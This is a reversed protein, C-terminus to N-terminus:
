ACRVLERGVLESGAAMASATLAPRSGSGGGDGGGEGGGAGGDGGGGGLNGGLGSSSASGRAGGGSGASRQALDHPAINFAGAWSILGGAPGGLTLAVGLAARLNTCRLLM